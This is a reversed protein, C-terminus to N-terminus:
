SIGNGNKEQLYRTTWILGVLVLSKTVVLVAGHLHFAYMCCPAAWHGLPIMQSVATLWRIELCGEARHRVGQSQHIVAM